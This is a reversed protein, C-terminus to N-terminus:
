VNELATAVDDYIDFLSDFRAIRLRQLVSHNQRPIVLLLRKGASRSEKSFLVLQEIAAWSLLEVSSFDLVLATYPEMAEAVRQVVAGMESIDSTELDASTTGPQRLLRAVDAVLALAHGSLKADATSFWVLCGCNPCPPFALCTQWM